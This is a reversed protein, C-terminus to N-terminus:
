VQVKLLEYDGLEDIVLAIITNDDACINIKNSNVKIKRDVHGYVLFINEPLNIKKFGTIDLTIFSLREQYDLPLGNLVKQWANQSGGAHSFLFTRSGFQKVYFLQNQPEPWLHKIYYFIKKTKQWAQHILYEALQEKYISIPKEFISRLTNFGGNRIWEKGANIDKNLLYNLMMYEHNGLLITINKDKKQEIIIDLVEKVDSGRDILDGLYIFHNVLPYNKEIEYLIEDFIDLNGHIDSLVVTISM